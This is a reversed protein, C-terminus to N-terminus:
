KKAGPSPKVPEKDPELEDPEEDPSPDVLEWGLATMPHRGEDPIDLVEGQPSRMLAM